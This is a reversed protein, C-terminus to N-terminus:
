VGYQNQKEVFTDAVFFVPIYRPPTLNLLSTKKRRKAVKMMALLITGVLSKNISKIGMKTALLLFIIGIRRCNRGSELSCRWLFSAFNWNPNLPVSFTEGPIKNGLQDFSHVLVLKYKKTPAAATRQKKWHFLKNKKANTRSSRGIESFM